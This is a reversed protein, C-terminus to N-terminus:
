EWRARWWRAAVVTGCVSGASGAGRCGPCLPTVSQAGMTTVMVVFETFLETGEVAGAILGGLHGPRLDATAATRATM